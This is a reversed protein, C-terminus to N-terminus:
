IQPSFKARPTVKWWVRRRFEYEAAALFAAPILVFLLWSFNIFDVFIINIAASAAPAKSAQLEDSSAWSEVLGGDAPPGGPPPIRLRLPGVKSCSVLLSVKVSSWFGFTLATSSSCICFILSNRFSGSKELRERSSLIAFIFGIRSSAIALIFSM